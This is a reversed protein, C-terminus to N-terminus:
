VIGRVLSGLLPGILGILVAIGFFDGTAIVKGLTGGVALRGTWVVLVFVGFGLGAMLGRRVSTAVLGVLAGGAVLGLWHLGAFATGAVVAVTLAVWHVFPDRRIRGLPTAGWARNDESM